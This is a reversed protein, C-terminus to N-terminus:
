VAPSAMLLQSSSKKPRTALRLSTASACYRALSSARLAACVLRTADTALVQSLRCALSSSSASVCRVRAVRWSESRRVLSRKSLPAAEASSRRWASDSVAAASDARAWCCRWRASSRLASVKSTPCGSGAESASGALSATVVCDSNRSTGAPNGESRSVRRASMRWASCCSIPALALMPAARAAKKGRMESVALTPVALLASESRNM